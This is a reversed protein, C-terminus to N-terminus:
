PQNEWNFEATHIPDYQRRIRELTAQDFPRPKFFGPRRGRIPAECPGLVTRLRRQLRRIERRYRDALKQRWALAWPKNCGLSPLNALMVRLHQIQDQLCAATPKPTTSM